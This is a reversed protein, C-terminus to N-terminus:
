RSKLYVQDQESLTEKPVEITKGDRRKLKVKVGDSSVFQAETSFKGSKDAWTRFENESKPSGQPSNSTPASLSETQIFDRIEQESVQRLVTVSRSGTQPVEVTATGNVFVPSSLIKEGLDLGATSELWMLYGTEDIIVLVDHANFSSIVTGDSVFGVSQNQRADLKPGFNLALQL